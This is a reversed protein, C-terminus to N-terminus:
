YELKAGILSALPDAGILKVIVGFFGAAESNTMIVYGSKRLRSAAVFCCSDPNGGSHRIIDNTRWNPLGSTHSLIHRATILDLRPDDVPDTSGAKRM